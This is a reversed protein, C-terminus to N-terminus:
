MKRFSKARKETRRGPKKVPRKVPGEGEKEKREMIFVIEKTEVHVFPFAAALRVQDLGRVKGLTTFEKTHNNPSCTLLHTFQSYEAPGLDETKSYWWRPNRQGFRSAGTMATGVDLHIYVEESPILSHAQRLAEGGPYNLSSVWLMFITGALSIMVGGCIALTALRYFMNKNFNQFRSLFGCSFTLGFGLVFM